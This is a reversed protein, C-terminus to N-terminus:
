SRALVDVAEFSGWAFLALSIFAVAITVRLWFVHKQSKQADVEFFDNFLFYQTLYTTLFALTAVVLGTVFIWLPKGVSRAIAAGTHAQGLYALIAVIAGGNILQLAKLAEAGISIMSKYTELAQEKSLDLQAKM